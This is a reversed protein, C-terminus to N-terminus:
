VRTKTVGYELLRSRDRASVVEFDDARRFGDGPAGRPRRAGLIRRAAVRLLPQRQVSDLAFHLFCFAGGGGGSNPTLTLLELPCRYRLAPERTASHLRLGFRHRAAARRLAFGDANRTSSAAARTCGACSSKSCFPGRESRLRLLAGPVLSPRGTRLARRARRLKEAVATAASAMAKGASTPSRNTLAFCDFTRPVLSGTGFVVSLMTWTMSGCGRASLGSHFPQEERWQWDPTPPRCPRV